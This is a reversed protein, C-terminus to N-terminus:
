LDLAVQPSRNRYNDIVIAREIGIPVFVHSRRPNELFGSLTDSIGDYIQRLRRTYNLRNSSRSANQFPSEPNLDRRVVAVSM